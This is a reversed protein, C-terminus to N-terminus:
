SRSDGSRALVERVPPRVLVEVLHETLRIGEPDYSFQAISEGPRPLSGDRDLRDLAVQWIEASMLGLRTDDQHRHLREGLDVQAMAALGHRAYTDVLIAFEVGYGCPIPLGEVLTRRVAYEGALPQAVGALEPWHLNLLPRAVLETVRGGGMTRRGGDSVLPRDYCAKVLQISPETLIPGLLAVVYNPTFSRLDADLFVVIDGETAALGRWMAEGKGQVTPIEPLVETTAVVRAGASRAVNATDDTSDSDVVLLEDVLPIPGAMLDRRIASVIDGITDQENRAPIIVSVRQDAKAALVRELPWDSASSTRETFWTRAAPHM